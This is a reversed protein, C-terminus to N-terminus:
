KNAGATETQWLDETIPTGNRFHYLGGWQHRVQLYETGKNDAVYVKRVIRKGNENVEEVTWGGAYKAALASQFEPSSKDMTELTPAAPKTAKPKRTVPKPKPKPAPTPEVEVEAKAVAKPEPPTSTAMGTIDPRRIPLNKLLEELSKPPRPPAPEADEMAEKAQVARDPVSISAVLEVPEPTPPPTPTAPTAAVSSEVSNSSSATIPQNTLAAISDMVLQIDTIKAIAVQDDPVIELAERYRNQAAQYQDKQFLRHADEVVKKYAEQKEQEAQWELMAQLKKSRKGNRNDGDQAAAPWALVLLLLSSLLYKVPGQMDLLHWNNCFYM